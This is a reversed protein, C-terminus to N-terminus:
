ARIAKGLLWFVALIGWPLGGAIWSLRIVGAPPAVARMRPAVWSAFLCFAGTVLAVFFMVGPVMRLLGPTKDPGGALSVVAWGIVTGAEALLTAMLSLMWAVTMAEATRQDDGKIDSKRNDRTERSERSADRGDRRSEDAADSDSSSPPPRRTPKQKKKNRSM